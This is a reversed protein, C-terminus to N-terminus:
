RWVETTELIEPYDRIGKRWRSGDVLVYWRGLPVASWTTRRM